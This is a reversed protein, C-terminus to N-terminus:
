TNSTEQEQYLKYEYNDTETNLQFIFAGNRLHFKRAMATKPSLTVLRLVRQQELLKIMDLILKRGAGPQKTWVTYAIAINGHQDDQHAAQSYYDLEKVTIPVENCYAVCVAAKYEDDAVLAWIERGPALRFDLTLEPRVPDDDINFKLKKYNELTIQVLQM